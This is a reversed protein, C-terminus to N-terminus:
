CAPRTSVDLASVPEDLVLVDPELALARAVGIRQRQGSSFEPPYRSTHEPRLRVLELLEGARARAAKSTAGRVILPEAIISWVQMRPNLSAYPDQFVIQLDVRLKRLEKRRLTLM